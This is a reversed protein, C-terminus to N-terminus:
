ISGPGSEGNVLYPIPPESSKKSKELVMSQLGYRKNVM